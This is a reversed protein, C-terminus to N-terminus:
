RVCGIKTITLSFASDLHCESLGSLSIPPGGLHNDDWITGVHVEAVLQGIDVGSDLIDGLKHLLFQIDSCSDDPCKLCFFCASRLM